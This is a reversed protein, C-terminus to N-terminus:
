CELEVMMEVSVADGSYDINVTGYLAGGIMASISECLRRLGSVTMRGGVGTYDIQFLQDKERPRRFSQVHIRSLAFQEALRKEIARETKLGKPKM